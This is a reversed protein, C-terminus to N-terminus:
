KQKLSDLFLEVNDKYRDDSPVSLYYIYDGKMFMYRTINTEQKYNYKIATIGKGLTVKSSEGYKLKESGDTIDQLSVRKGNINSEKGDILNRLEEFTVEFESTIDGSGNSTYIKYKDALGYNGINEEIQKEIEFAEDLSLNNVNNLASFQIQEESVFRNGYQTALEISYAVTKCNPSYMTYTSKSVKDDKYTEFTFGELEFSATSSKIDVKEQEKLDKSLDLTIKAQKELTRSNASHECMEKVTINIKTGIKEKDIRIASTVGGIVERESVSNDRDNLLLSEGDETKAEIKYSYSPDTTYSYLCYYIKAHKDETNDYEYLKIGSYEDQEDDDFYFDKNEISYVKKDLSVKEKVVNETETENTESINNELTNPKDTAEQNTTNNNKTLLVFGVIVVVLISIIFVILQRLFRKKGSKKNESSVNWNNEEM